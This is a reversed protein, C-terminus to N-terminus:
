QYLHLLTTQRDRDIIKTLWLGAFTALGISIGNPIHVGIPGLYQTLHPDVDGVPPAPHARPVTNSPIWMGCPLLVKSPIIDPNERMSGLVMGLPASM